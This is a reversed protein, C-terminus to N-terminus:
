QPCYCSTSSTLYWSNVLLLREHISVGERYQVQCSNLRLRPYQITYSLLTSNSFISWYWLTVYCTWVSHQSARLSLPSFTTLSLPPSPSTFSLLSQHFTDSALIIFFVEPWSCRAHYWLLNLQPRACASGPALTHAWPAWYRCYRM